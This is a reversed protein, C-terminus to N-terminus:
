KRRTPQNFVTSLAEGIVTCADNISVAVQALSEVLAREIQGLVAAVPELVTVMAPWIVELAKAADKARYYDVDHVRAPNPGVHLWWLISRPTRYSM